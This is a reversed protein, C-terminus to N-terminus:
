CAAWRSARRYRAVGAVVRSAPAADGRLPAERRAGEIILIASGILTLGAGGILM